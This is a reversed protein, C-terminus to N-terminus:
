EKWANLVTIAQTGAVGGVTKIRNPVLDALDGPSKARVKLLLDGYTHTKYVCSVADIASLKKTVDALRCPAADLLMFAVVTKDVAVQDVSITFKIIVGTRRLRKIRNRVTGETVHLNSAM